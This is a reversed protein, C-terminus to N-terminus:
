RPFQDAEMIRLKRSHGKLGRRVGKKQLKFAPSKWHTVSLRPFCFGADTQSAEM